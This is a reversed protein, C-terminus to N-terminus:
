AGYRRQSEESLGEMYRCGHGCTYLDGTILGKGLMTTQYGATERYFRSNHKACRRDSCIWGDSPRVGNTAVQVTRNPDAWVEHKVGKLDWDPRDLSITGVRSLPEGKLSIAFDDGRDQIFKENFKKIFQEYHVVNLRERFSRM